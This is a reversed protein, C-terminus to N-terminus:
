EDNAMGEVTDKARPGWENNTWRFVPKGDRVLVYAPFHGDAHTAMVDMDTAMVVDFVGAAEEEYPKLWVSDATCVVMRMRMDPNREHLAKLETVARKCYPCDAIAIVVIDADAYDTTTKVTSMDASLDWLMDEYIPHEAFGIAFPTLISLLVVSYKKWASKWNVGGALIWGLRAGLVILLVYYMWESLMWSFGKSLLFGRVNGFSSPILLLVLLFAIVVPKVKKMTCFFLFGDRSSISKWNKEFEINSSNAAEVWCLLLLALLMVLKKQM